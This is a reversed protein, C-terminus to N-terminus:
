QRVAGKQGGAAPPTEQNAAAAALEANLFDQHQQRHQIIIAAIAKENPDQSQFLKRFNETNMFDSLVKLRVAHTEWPLAEVQVGALMQELEAKEATEDVSHFIGEVDGFELLKLAKEKSIYEKDALDIITKRRAEKSLPLSSGLSVKIRRNGETSSGIFSRVQAGLDDGAISILRPETYRNKMIELVTDVFFGLKEEVSILQPAIASNDLETLNEIAVGSKVGRPVRSLSVDHVAAIDEMDRRIRDLDKFLSAPASPPVDWHPEGYSSNYVIVQGVEDDYRTKMQCGAPVKVKGNLWKKYAYLKSITFNYEEQPQILQDVFGQAYQALMIDIYKFRFLPFCGRYDPDADTPELIWENNTFIMQRGNPHAQSPLEWSYYLQVADEYKVSEGTSGELMNLIQREGDSMEVNTPKVEKGFLHYLEEVSAIQVRTISRGLPDPFVEFDHLVECEVQGVRGEVVEGELVAKGRSNANFFPYLYGGGTALLYSFLKGLVLMMGPYKDCLVPNKSNVTDWFDEIFETSARAANRDRETRTSPEITVNSKMMLLRAHLSRYLPLIYNSTRRTLKQRQINKLEWVVREELGGVTRRRDELEFYHKGYLFAINTIWQREYAMRMRRIKNVRTIVKGRLQTSADNTNVLVDKNVGTDRLGEAVAQSLDEPM